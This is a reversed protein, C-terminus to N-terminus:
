DRRFKGKATSLYEYPEPPCLPMPTALRPKAISLVPYNSTRGCVLKPMNMGKNEEDELHPYYYRKM